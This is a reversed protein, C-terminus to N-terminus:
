LKRKSSKIFFSILNDFLNLSVFIKVWAARELKELKPEIGNELWKELIRGKCDEISVNLTRTQTIKTM